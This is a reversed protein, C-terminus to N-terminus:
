KPVRVSTPEPVRSDAADSIDGRVFDGEDVWTTFGWPNYIQLKGGEEGIIMMHHGEVDGRVSVPVPKGEYVSRRIDSLVDERDGSDDLHRNDYDGGTHSGIESDAIVESEADTMGEDVSTDERTEYVRHEEARLRQEFADPNDHAPDGPRGGTTLKLAYTPDTQAHATVTSMAVCTSGKQEWLKPGFRVIANQDGSRRSDGPRNVMPTLHRQLWMPSDGFRHIQDRFSRVEDVNHGTAVAKMVYAREQPSKADDLMMDVQRRDAEGMRDLYAGSRHLDAATLIENEDRAGGPAAADAMVVRDAASLHGGDLKGARAESALKNLARAATDGAEEARAVAARLQRLGSLATSRAKEADDDSALTAPEGLQNAATHLAQVGTRHAAKAERIGAALLRLEKGASRFKQSMEDASYAAANTVESAKSGAEGVWTAPLGARGVSRIDGHATEVGKAAKTFDSAKGEIYEPDGDPESCRLGKEIASSLLKKALMGHSGIPQDITGLLDDVQKKRDRGLSTM